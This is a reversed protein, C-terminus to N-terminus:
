NGIVTVYILLGSAPVKLINSKVTSNNVSGSCGTTTITDTRVGAFNNSSDSTGTSRATCQVSYINTFGASSYDISWDGTGNATTSGTWIIPKDVLGGSTYVTPRKNIQGQLKGLAELLKDGTAIPLNTIYSVMNPIAKIFKFDVQSM